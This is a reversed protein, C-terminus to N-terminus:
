RAAAPNAPNASPSTPTPSEEVPAAAPATAPAAPGGDLAASAAADGRHGARGILFGLGIAAAAALAILLVNKQTRYENMPTRRTNTRRRTRITCSRRGARM